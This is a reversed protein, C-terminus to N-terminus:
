YILVRNKEIQIKPMREVPIKWSMLFFWIRIIGRTKLFSFGALTKM